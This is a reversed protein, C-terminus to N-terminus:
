EHSWMGAGDECGLGRWPIRSGRLCLASARVLASSLRARIWGLTYAYGRGRWGERTQLASAIRKLFHVAERGWVGDVTVAIPTFHMRSDESILRHHTKKTREHQALISSTTRNGYSRADANTICLDFSASVQPEWVGRVVLDTRVGPDGGVVGERLTVEKKVSGCGWAMACLDGIM